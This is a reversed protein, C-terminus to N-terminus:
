TYPNPGGLTDILYRCLGETINRQVPNNAPNFTTAYAYLECAFRKITEVDYKRRINGVLAAIIATQVRNGYHNAPIMEFRGNYYYEFSEGNLTIPTSFDPLIVSKPHDSPEGIFRRVDEMVEYDIWYGIMSIGARNELETLMDKRYYLQLCDVVDYLFTGPATSHSVREWVSWLYANLNGLRAIYSNVVMLVRKAYEESNMNICVSGAGLISLFGTAYTEVFTNSDDSLRSLNVKVRDGDVSEIRFFAM